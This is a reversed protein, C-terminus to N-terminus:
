GSFKSWLKSGIYAQGSVWQPHFWAACPRLPPNERCFLSQLPGLYHCYQRSSQWPELCQLFLVSNRLRGLLGLDCVLHGTIESIESGTQEQSMSIASDQDGIQMALPIVFSLASKCTSQLSSHAPWHAHPNVRTSGTVSSGTIVSHRPFFFAVKFLQQPIAEKTFDAGPSLGTLILVGLIDIELAWWSSCVSTQPQFSRNVSQIYLALLTSKQIKVKLDPLAQDM